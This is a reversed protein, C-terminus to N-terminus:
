SGGGTRYRPNVVAIKHQVLQTVAALVDPSDHAIEGSRIAAALEAANNRVYNDLPVVEGGQGRERSPSPSDPLIERLMRAEERLFGPDLRTERALIRCVSAAIRVQFAKRGDYDPMVEEELFAAITDLLEHAPPSDQM